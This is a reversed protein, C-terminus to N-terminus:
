LWSAGTSRTRRRFVLPYSVRIDDAEVAQPFRLGILVTRVCDDLQADGSGSATADLVRGHEDITFELTVVGELRPSQSLREEYCNRLAARRLRIRRQVMDRTIGARYFGCNSVRVTGARSSSAAAARAQEQRRWLGAYDYAGAPITAEDHEIFRLSEGWAPQARARTCMMALLAIVITARV